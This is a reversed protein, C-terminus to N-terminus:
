LCPFPPPEGPYLMPPWERSYGLEAGPFPLPEGPYLVAGNPFVCFPTESWGPRETMYDPFVIWADPRIDWDWDPISYGLDTAHERSIEHGNVLADAGSYFEPVEPWPTAVAFRLLLRRVALSAAQTLPERSGIYWVKM